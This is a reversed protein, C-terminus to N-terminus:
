KPESDPPLSKLITKIAAGLGSICGILVFVVTLLGGTKLYRDLYVGLITFLFITFLITLGVQSILALHKLGDKM